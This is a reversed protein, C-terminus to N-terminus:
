KKKNAAKLGRANAKAEAKTTNKLSARVNQNMVQAAGGRVHSKGTPSQVKKIKVNESIQVDRNGMKPVVNKAGSGPVTYDYAQRSNSIVRKAPKAAPKVAKIVAKAGAGLAKTIPSKKPKIAM